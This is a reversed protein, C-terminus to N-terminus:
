RSGFGFGDSEKGTNQFANVSSFCARLLGIESLLKCAAGVVFLMVNSEIFGVSISLMERRIKAFIRRVQRL